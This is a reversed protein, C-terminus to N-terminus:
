LVSQAGSNNELYRYTKARLGVLEKIIKGGLIDKMLRIVKKHEGKSLPRAIEFKTLNTLLTLNQKMM